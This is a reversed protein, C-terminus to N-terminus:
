RSEILAATDLILAVRGDGLITAGSFGKAESFLKGLSKIVIEQQSILKDVVLGAKRAGREVIVVSTRGNKEKTVSPCLRVLPIIEDSIKIVERRKVTKIDEPRIDVIRNVSALPIAYIEGNIGVILAQVIALTLPLKLTVKTGKGVESDVEVSGGLPEIKAKVVDMGVGRGSTDTIETATSFGPKFILDLAEEDTIDRAEEETLLGRQVAAEKVKKPDIGRGDDEISIAVHDKERSACITLKGTKPKGLKERESPKEIGHDVANRLIHVLPESIEELITRDVEIERGKITFDVEKERKKAIDRVTRPFRNFIHEVPVMRMQMIEYQLDDMLRGYVTLAEKLEPIRNNKSIDELRARNILLEGVLNVISDLRELNVRISQTSPGRIKIEEMEKKPIEGERSVAEELVEVDSIEPLSLICDAIRKKGENTSFLVEFRLGADEREMEEVSPKTEVVEGLEKLNKLVIFARVSKLQCSEQLHVVVRFHKKQQTRSRSSYESLSDLIPRIDVEEGEGGAIKKILEELIDVTDFLIDVIETGGELKGKRIDDLVDEAKHTLKSIKEFGMTASMGKLTHMSRFIENVLEISFKKELKLLSNNLNDLHEQSENIFLEMYEKKVM